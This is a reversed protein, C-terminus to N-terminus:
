GVAKIVTEVLLDAPFPKQLCAVAGAEAAEGRAMAADLTSTFIIPCRCGADRLRRALAVGTTHEMRIDIVLCAAKRAAAAQLFVTVSDFTVAGFGFASLLQATAHRITRDDDIIAVLKPEAPPLRNAAGRRRPWEGGRGNERRSPSLLLWSWLLVGSQPQYVRSKVLTKNDDALVNDARALGLAIQNLSKPGPLPSVATTSRSAL